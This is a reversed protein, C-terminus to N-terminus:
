KGFNVPENTTIQLHEGLGFQVLAFGFILGIAWYGLLQIQSLPGYYALFGERGGPNKFLEAMRTWRTWTVRYFWSTFRWHRQIRRPLVVTEFADLLILFILIFGAISIGIHM